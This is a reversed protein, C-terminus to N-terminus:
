CVAFGTERATQKIANTGKLKLGIIVGHGDEFRRDHKDGNIVKLGLYESPMAKRDDFVVAVNTGTQTVALIKSPSTRENRSLTLHLNSIDSNAKAINARKTYEYFQVQPYVLYIDRWDIDSTGNLRIALRKGAKIAKRLASDIEKRLQDIFGQKDDLYFRTREIRASTQTPMRMMGSNTLCSAKCGESAGKCLTKYDVSPELYVVYNLWQDNQSKDIKSSTSLLKM